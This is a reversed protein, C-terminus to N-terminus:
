PLCPLINLTANVETPIASVTITREGLYLIVVRGVRQPLVKISNRGEMIPAGVTQSAEHLGQITTNM